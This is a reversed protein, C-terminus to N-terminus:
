DSQKKFAVHSGISSLTSIAGQARSLEMQMGSGAALPLLQSAMVHKAPWFDMVTVAECFLNPM